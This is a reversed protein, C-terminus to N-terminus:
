SLRLAVQAGKTSNQQQFWEVVGLEDWSLHTRQAISHVLTLGPNEPHAGSSPVFSPSSSDVALSESMLCSTSDRLPLWRNSAMRRAAGRPLPTVSTWPPNCKDLPTVSAGESKLEGEAM